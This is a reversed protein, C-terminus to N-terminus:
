PATVQQAGNGVLSVSTGAGAVVGRNLLLRNGLQDRAEFGVQSANAGVSCTQNAGQACAVTPSLGHMFIDGIISVFPGWGGDNAIGQNRVTASINSGSQDAQIEGGDIVVHTWANSSANGADVIYGSHTAFEIHPLYLQVAGFGGGGTAAVIDTQSNFDFSTEAARIEDCGENDIGITNNSITGGSISENEGADVLGPPCYFGTANGLLQPNILHNIYSNNGV